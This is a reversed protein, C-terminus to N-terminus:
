HSSTKLEMWEIRNGSPDCVYVRHYTKSPLVVSRLMEYGLPM